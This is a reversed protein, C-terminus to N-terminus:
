GQRMKHGMWCWLGPLLFLPGGYDGPWFGDETQLTSYFRLARRLTTAVAEETIEKETKVKVQPLEMECPNERAFM